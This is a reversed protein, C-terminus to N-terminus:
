KFTRALLEMAILTAGPFRSDVTLNPDADNEGYREGRFHLTLETTGRDSVRAQSILDRTTTMEEAVWAGPERRITVVIKEGTISDTRIESLPKDETVGLSGVEARVSACKRSIRGQDASDAMKLDKKMERVILRRARAENVRPPFARLRESVWRGMRSLLKKSDDQKKEKTEGRDIDELERDDVM